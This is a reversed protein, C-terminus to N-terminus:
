YHIRDKYTEFLQRNLADGGEVNASAFVPPTVGSELLCCLTEAIVAHLMAVGIVTSIPATKVTLGPIELVADGPPAPVDLVHDACEHLMRGSPHRSSVESAYRLSSLAVVTVGHTRAWLAMEIPVVNRGSISAIILVDGARVPSEALVAEAIGSIREFRTTRSAPPQELTMGPLFLPNILMLGGARYFIEQAFISSHSCGTIFLTGGSCITQAFLAAVRELADQQSQQVQLLSDAIISFYRNMPRGTHQVHTDRHMVMEIVAIAIRAIPQKM